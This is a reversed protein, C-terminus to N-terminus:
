LFRCDSWRKTIFNASFSESQWSEHNTHQNSETQWTKLKVPPARDNRGIRKHQVSNNWHSKWQTRIRFSVGSIIQMFELFVWENVGKKNAYPLIFVKLKRVCTMTFYKNPTKRTNFDSIPSREGKLPKWVHKNACDKSLMLSPLQGTIVTTTM